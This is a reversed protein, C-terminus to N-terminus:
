VALHGRCGGKRRGAAAPAGRRWGPATWQGSVALSVRMDSTRNGPEPARAEFADIFLYPRGTELDYLLAQMDDEPITLEAALSLRHEEGRPAIEVKSSLLQGHAAAVASELRQQLAAGALTITNTEFLPTALPDRTSLPALRRERAELAALQDHLGAVEARRDMLSFATSAAGGLALAIATVAGFASFTQRLAANV